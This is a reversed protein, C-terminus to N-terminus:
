GLCLAYHFVIAQDLYPAANILMATVKQRPRRLKTIKPLSALPPTKIFSSTDFQCTIHHTCTVHILTPIQLLQPRQSNVTFEMKDWLINRIPKKKTATINKKTHLNIFSVVLSDGPLAADGNLTSRLPVQGTKYHM